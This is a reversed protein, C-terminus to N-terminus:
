KWGGHMQRGMRRAAGKVIVVKSSVIGM